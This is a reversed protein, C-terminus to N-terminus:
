KNKLAQTENVQKKLTQPSSINEDLVLNLESIVDGSYLALPIQSHEHITLECKHKHCFMYPEIYWQDKILNPTTQQCIPCIRPTSRIWSSHFLLGHWATKESCAKVALKSQITKQDVKFRRHYNEILPETVFTAHNAPKLQYPHMLQLRHSVRLPSVLNAAASRM